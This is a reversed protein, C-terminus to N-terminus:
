IIIRPITLQTNAKWFLFFLGEESTAAKSLPNTVHFPILTM